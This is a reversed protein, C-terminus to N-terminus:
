LTPSALFASRFPFLMIYLIEKFTNFKILLLESIREGFRQFEAAEPGQKPELSFFVAQHVILSIFIGSGCRKLAESNLAAIRLVEAATSPTPKAM